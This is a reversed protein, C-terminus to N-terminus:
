GTDVRVHVQDQRISMYDMIILYLDKEKYDSYWIVRSIYIYM